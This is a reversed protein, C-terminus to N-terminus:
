HKNLIDEVLNHMNNYFDNDQIRSEELEYLICYLLFAIFVLVIFIAIIM